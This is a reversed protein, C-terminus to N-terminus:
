KYWCDFKLFSDCNAHPFRFTYFFFFFLDYSVRTIMTAVTLDKFQYCSM